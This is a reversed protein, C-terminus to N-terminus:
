QNMRKIDQPSRPPHEVAATVAGLFITADSGKYVAFRGVSDDLPSVREKHLGYGTLIHYDKGQNDYRLFFIYRRGILPIGQDVIRYRIIRGDPLQVDAGERDAVVLGNSLRGDDKFIKEVRITFESYAGTKDNSVYGQSDIVEGLIVADSEATPLAPMNVWFHSIRSVGVTDLRLEDLRSPYSKDYRSNRAHRLTQETSDTSKAASFVAMPLPTEEPKNIPKEQSQLWAATYSPNAVSLFIALGLITVTLILFVTKAKLFSM